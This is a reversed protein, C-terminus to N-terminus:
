STTDEVMGGQSTEIALDRVSDMEETGTKAQPAEKVIKEVSGTSSPEDASSSILKMVKTNNDSFDSESVTSSSRVSGGNPQEAVKSVSKTEIAAATEISQKQQDFTQDLTHILENENGLTRMGGQQHQNHHHHQQGQQRARKDQLARQRNEYFQFDDLISTKSSFSKFINLMGIAQEFKVEQTDRSNTVPKNDNNELIIHRFHCNPIDKIIHWKVAFCGNWKDQQWYEVSKGFDVPGVMEAVGCFQGSANVSFFLFVPCSGPKGSAVKNQAELFAADLRKNGAPTSAWVNYKISKHVDDESYSKIVFFKAHEYNTVFDPQNYQERNVLAGLAAAESNVPSSAAAGQGRAHRLIGPAVRQNRLRTTRPGRNQENLFDLAGNNSNNNLSGGGRGRHKGKDINIWGGGRGNLRAELVNGGGSSGGGHGARAAAGIPGNMVGALQPYGRALAGPGPSSLALASQPWQQLPLTQIALQQSAVSHLGAAIQPRQLGETIKTVEAWSPASARLGEYRVDQPGPTNIAIPLVGRAYPGHCPILTVSSFGAPRPGVNGNSLPGNSANVGPPNPERAGGPTSLEVGPMAPPSPLYQAGPSLPAQYIHNPYQYAAQPGYLQGDAGITPGATGPSYPSYPQQSPYGFGTAQLFVSGNDSYVGPSQLEGADVGAYQPYDDWEGRAYDYVYASPYGNIYYVGADMSGERMTANTSSFSTPVESAATDGGGAQIVQTNDIKLTQLLESVHETPEAVVAM